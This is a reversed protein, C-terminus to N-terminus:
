HIETLHKYYRKPMWSNQLRPNKRADITTAKYYTKFLDEFRDTIEAQALQTSEESSLYRIYIDKQDYIIASRRKQDHIIFNQDSFRNKFHGMLLPLINHDPEIAAYFTLPAIEKFRIFGLFRHVETWVRKCTLDVLRIHDNNKALNISDGYQYCLKIYNFGLTDAGEEESLFLHYLNDLTSFSLKTIISDSVREAKDEETPVFKTTSLLSPSHVQEKFLQVEEKEPYAYFIATLYGSFSGDYLYDIM